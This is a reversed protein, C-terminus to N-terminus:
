RHIQVETTSTSPEQCTGLKLYDTCVEFDALSSIESQTIHEKNFWFFGDLESYWLTLGNQRYLMYTIILSKNNFDTNIRKELSGAPGDSLKDIDDNPLFTHACTVTLTAKAIFPAKGTTSVTVEGGNFALPTFRGKKNFKRYFIATYTWSFDATKQFYLQSLNPVFKGNDIYLNYSKAANQIDQEKYLLPVSLNSTTNKALEQWFVNIDAHSFSIAQVSSPICQGDDNRDCYAISYYDDMQAIFFLRQGLTTPTLYASSNQELFDLKDQSKTLYVISSNEKTHTVKYFYNFETNAEWESYVALTVILLLISFISITKYKLTKNKKALIPSPNKNIDSASPIIATAKIQYGVSSILEIFEGKETERLKIRLNRITQFLSTRAVSKHPWGAQLLEDFSVVRYTNIILYNLIEREARNLSVEQRSTFLTRTSCAYIFEAGVQYNDSELEKDLM